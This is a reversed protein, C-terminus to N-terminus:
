VYLKRAPALPTTPDTPTPAEKDPFKSDCLMEMSSVLIETTIPSFYKKVM